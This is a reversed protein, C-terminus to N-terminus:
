RRIGKLAINREIIHNLLLMFSFIDASKCISIHSQATRQQWTLTHHWVSTKKHTWGSGLVPAHGRLAAATCDGGRQMRGLLTDQMLVSAHVLLGSTLMVTSDLAIATNAISADAVPVAECWIHAGSRRWHCSARSAGLRLSGDSHGACYSHTSSQRCPSEAAHM